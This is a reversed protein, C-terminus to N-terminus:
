QGPRWAVYEAPTLILPRLLGLGSFDKDGSVLVDVDSAIASQLVPLDDPDRMLPASVDSGLTEFWEFGLTGLFRELDECRSPFKRHFVDRVEELVYDGLVVRDRGLVDQFVALPGDSFLAASVIVNTDLMVRM